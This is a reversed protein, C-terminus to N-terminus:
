SGEEMTAEAASAISQMLVPTAELYWYTSAINAHGLYTALAVFHRAVPRAGIACQELARTAFTHRMDHIRPRRGDPPSVGAASLVRRFTHHVTRDSLPEGHRSLFLADHVTAVRVREELYHHLAATTTAHLPVFRSKGCKSKHVHLVGDDHVDRVRLSLAEMIRLGTSAILGFLTAYVWPRLSYYPRLRAAEQVIRAIEESSYLYPLRRVTRYPFPTGTLV